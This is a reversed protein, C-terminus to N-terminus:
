KRGGRRPQAQPRVPEEVLILMGKLSRNVLESLTLRRDAAYRMARRLVDPELRVMATNPDRSIFVSYAGGRRSREFREREERTLPRLKSSPIPKDFEKTAERLEDLNLHWYPKSPKARAM